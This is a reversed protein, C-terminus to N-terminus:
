ITGGKELIQAVNLNGPNDDRRYTFPLSDAWEDPITDEQPNVSFSWTEWDDIDTVSREAAREAKRDDEALVYVEAELTVRWLILKPKEPM